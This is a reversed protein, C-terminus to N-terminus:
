DQANPTPFTMVNIGNDALMKKVDDYANLADYVCGDNTMVCCGDKTKGLLCIDQLSLIFKEEGKKNATTFEVLVIDM